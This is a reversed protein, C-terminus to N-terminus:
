KLNQHMADKTVQIEKEYQWISNKILNSGLKQGTDMVWKVVKMHKFENLNEYYEDVM